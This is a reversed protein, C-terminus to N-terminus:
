SILKTCLPQVFSSDPNNESKKMKPIIIQGKLQIVMDGTIAKAMTITVMHIAMVWLIDM